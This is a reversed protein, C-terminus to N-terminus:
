PHAQSGIMVCVHCLLGQLLQRWLQTIIFQHMCQNMGLLTDARFDAALTFAHFRQFLLQLLDIIWLCFVQESNDIM